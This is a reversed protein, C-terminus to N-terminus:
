VMANYKVESSAARSPSRLSGGASSFACISSISESLTPVGSNKSRFSGHSCEGAHLSKDDTERRRTRLRGSPKPSSPPSPIPSPRKGGLPVVRDARTFRDRPPELYGIRAHSKDQSALRRSTGRDVATMASCSQRTRRNRSSPHSKAAGRERLPQKGGILPPDRGQRSV